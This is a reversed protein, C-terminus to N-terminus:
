CYELVLNLLYNSLVLEIGKKIEKKLIPRLLLSEINKDTTQTKKFIM